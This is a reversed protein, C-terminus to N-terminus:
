RDEQVHKLMEVLASDDGTEIYQRRAAAYRAEAPIHAPCPRALVCVPEPDGWSTIEVWECDTCRHETM